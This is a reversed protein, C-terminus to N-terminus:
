GPRRPFAPGPSAASSSTHPPLAPSSGPPPPTSDRESSIDDHSEFIGLRLIFLHSEGGPVPVIGLKFPKPRFLSFPSILIVELPLLLRHRTLLCDPPDARDTSSAM